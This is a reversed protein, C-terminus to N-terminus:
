QLDIAEEYVRLTESAMKKWSYKKLQEKGLKILEKRRAEDNLLRDLVRAIEHPERPDFYEAADQLVEPMCSTNSTAVPVNAAMAELQPLGFGEYLSPLVFVSAAGYLAPLDEEPVFGPTIVGGIRERVAEIKEMVEPFDINPKGCIVLEVDDHYKERLMEYASLLPLIGKHPRWQSVFLLYPKEIKYEKLIEDKLNNKSSTSFSDEKEKAHWGYVDDVAEYTVVVDEPKARLMSVVDNKSAVSPVIVKRAKKAAHKMVYDYAFKRIPDGQKRGVPYMSMILDHITVVFPTKCFLPHNFNTYHILDLKQKDVLKGFDRQESFTYYFIDTVVETFNEGPKEYEKMDEPLLFVVYDNKKDLIALEKLLARTYRGIGGTAKRYMRADIGIKM